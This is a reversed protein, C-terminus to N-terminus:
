RQTNCSTNEDKKLADLIAILLRRPERDQDHSRSDCSLSAALQREYHKLLPAAARVANEIPRTNWKQNAEDHSTYSGAEASMCGPNRCQVCWYNTDSFPKWAKPEAGCFPCGLWASSRVPPAGTVDTTSETTM